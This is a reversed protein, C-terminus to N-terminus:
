LVRVAPRWAFGPVAAACGAAGSTVLMSILSETSTVLARM